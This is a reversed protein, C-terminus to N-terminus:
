RTAKRLEASCFSCLGNLEDCICKVGGELAGLAAAYPYRDNVDPVAKLGELMLQLDAAIEQRTRRKARPQQCKQCTVLCVSM